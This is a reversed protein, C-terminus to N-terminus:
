SAPPPIKKAAEIWFSYFLSNLYKFHFVSPFQKGQLIINLCRSWIRNQSFNRRIQLRVCIINQPKKRRSLFCAIFCSFPFLVCFKNKFNNPTKQQRQKHMTPNTQKHKFPPNTVKQQPTPKKTHSKDGKLIGSLLLCFTVKFTGSTSLCCCYLIHLPFPLPEKWGGAFVNEM